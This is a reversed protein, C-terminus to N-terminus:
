SKYYFKFKVKIICNLDRRSNFKVKKIYNMGLKKIENM